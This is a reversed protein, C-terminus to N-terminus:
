KRGAATAAPSVQGPSTGHLRESVAQGAVSMAATLISGLLGALVLKWLEWRRSLLDDLKKDLTQVRSEFVAMRKDLDHALHDTKAVKELLREQIEAEVRGLDSRVHDLRGSLEALTKDHERILDEHLRQAM